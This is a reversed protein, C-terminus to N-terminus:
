DRSTAAIQEQNLELFRDGWHYQNLLDSTDRGLIRLAAYIAEITALGDQPDAFNKSVRPYATSWPPLSRVPLDLYSKKMREALRWTGDLVLLGHKADESSLIPGGIGLRVYSDLPKPGREPFTWFIFEDRGRL